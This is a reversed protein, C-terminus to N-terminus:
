SLFFELRYHPGGGPLDFVDGVKQFGKREYLSLAAVRANCWIKAVGKDKAGEILADLILSGLGKGRQGDAVAMGRVRAVTKEFILSGCAILRGEERIAVHLTEAYSDELYLVREVPGHPHLVKKRLEILEKLKYASIKKVEPKM